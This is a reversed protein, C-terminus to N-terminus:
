SILLSILRTLYKSVHSVLVQSAEQSQSAHQPACLGTLAGWGPHWRLSSSGYLLDMSWASPAAMSSHVWGPSFTVLYSSRYNYASSDHDVTATVDFWRRLSTM